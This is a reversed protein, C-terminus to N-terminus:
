KSLRCSLMLDSKSNVNVFSILEPDFKVIESESVFQVKEGLLLSRMRLDGKSVLYEIKNVLKRNYIACLPEINSNNLRPILVAVERDLIEVMYEVLERKIFPMDCASVFVFGTDALRLSTYLGGIPGLDPIIDPFCREYGQLKGRGILLPETGLASRFVNVIRLFLPEGEICLLAKDRGFRRSKGGALIAATIDSKRSM